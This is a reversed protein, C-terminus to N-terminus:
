GRGRIADAANGYAIAMEKTVATDMLHDCIDACAEREADAVIRAFKIYASFTGPSSDRVSLGAEEAMHKIVRDNMGENSM